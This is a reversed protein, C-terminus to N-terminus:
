VHARGIEQLNFTNAATNRLEHPLTSANMGASVTPDVTEEWNGKGSTGNDSFFKLWFTDSEGGLSVVKALRGDTSEAPLDAQTRVQENFSDIHIGAQSDTTTLEFAVNPTGTDTSKLELELSADLQTVTLTHGSISLDLLGNNYPATIYPMVGLAFVAFSTLSGGSFLQLFALVGGQNARDRLLQVQEVDIGPAPVFAGIRYLLIMLLTFLIRKRLDGVRFM